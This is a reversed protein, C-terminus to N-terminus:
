SDLDNRDHLGSMAEKFEDVNQVVIMDGDIKFPLKYKKKWLFLHKILENEQIDLIVSVDSKKIKNSMDLIEQFDM